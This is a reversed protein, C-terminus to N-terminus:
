KPVTAEWNRSGNTNAIGGFKINMTGDSTDNIRFSLGFKSYVQGNRSQAFFAQQILGIGHRNSLATLSVSPQYGAEPAAFTVAEEKGSTEILGGGVAEIKIGWDQPHHESVEGAPRNVTIKIDGGDSVIKGTVLDFNIASSTFNLKHSCNINALPEAGQLKWMKIVKPHNPDSIFHDPYMYSYKFETSATALVYGEKRPWLGLSEGKGGKVEFLGNVDSVVTLREVTSQIGSYVRISAAIQADAVPSGFQDELRGYFAIPVDNLKTLGEKIQENKDQFTPTGTTAGNTSPLPVAAIPGNSPRGPPSPNANVSNTQVSLAAIRNKQKKWHWLVVAILVLIVVICRVIFIRNKMSLPHQLWISFIVVHELLEM